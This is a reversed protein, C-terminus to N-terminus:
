FGLDEKVLIIYIKRGLFAPEGKFIVIKNLVTHTNYLDQMHKDELPVVYEELRKLAEALNPVIKKTSIVFILNKSTSIINPLQSATNSAIIMEASETLAHVSGLYFDSLSSVKRLEQRKKDDNEANIKARLDIWQHKGEALYDKYGIQELTVSSGNMISAGAPIIEKIKSLAEKGKKFVFVNYGKGKLEETTKEVSNNGALANYQM